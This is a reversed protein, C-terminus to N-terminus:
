INSLVYKYFQQVQPISESYKERYTDAFDYLSTAANLLTQSYTPDSFPFKIQTDSRSKHIVMM